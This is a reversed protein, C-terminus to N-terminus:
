IRGLSKCGVIQGKEDRVAENPIVLDSRDRAAQAVLSSVIILTDDREEPLGEVAGDTNVYRTDRGRWCLYNGGAGDGGQLPM